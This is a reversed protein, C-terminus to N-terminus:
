SLDAQYRSAFHPAYESEHKAKETEPKLKNDSDTPVSRRTRRQSLKQQQETWKQQSELIRRHASLKPRWNVAPASSPPPVEEVDSSNQDMPPVKDASAGPADRWKSPLPAPIKLKSPTLDDADGPRWTDPDLASLGPAM